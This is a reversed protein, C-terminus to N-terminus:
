NWGACENGFDTVPTCTLQDPVRDPILSQQEIKAQFEACGTLVSVVMLGTFIYGLITLRIMWTFLKRM